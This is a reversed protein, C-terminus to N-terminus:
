AYGEDKLYRTITRKSPPKEGKKELRNKIIEAKRNPSLNDRSSIRTYEELVLQKRLAKNKNTSEISKNIRDFNKGGMIVEHILENGKQMLQMVTFDFPLDYSAPINSFAANRYIYSIGMLESTIQSLEDPLKYKKPLFPSLEKKLAKNSKKKKLGTEIVIDGISISDVYRIYQKNFSINAGKGKKSFLSDKFALLYTGYKIVLNHLFEFKELRLKTLAEEGNHYDRSFAKVKPMM